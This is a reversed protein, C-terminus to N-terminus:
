EYSWSVNERIINAPNGAVMCGAPVNRTVVSHAGIIANDGIQVNKLIIAGFGVWVHNGINVPTSKNIVNGTEDIIPHHDSDYYTVNRGGMFDNGITLSNSVGVVTNCNFFGSGLELYGNKFVQITTGYNLAFRGKVHMKAGEFLRIICEQNSGNPLNNNAILEDEIILEATEHMEIITNGIKTLKGVVNM